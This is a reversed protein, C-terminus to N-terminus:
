PCPMDTVSFSWEFTETGSDSPYAFSVKYTSQPLDTTPTYIITARTSPSTMNERIVVKATLDKGDLMLKITSPDFTSGDKRMSDTIILDVGVQPRPCTLSDKEPYLGRIEFPFELDSMPSTEGSQQDTLNAQSSVEAGELNEASVPTETGQEETQMEHQPSSCGVIILLPIIIWVVIIKPLKEKM